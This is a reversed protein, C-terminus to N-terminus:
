IKQEKFKAKRISNYSSIDELRADWTASTTFFRGALTPSTLFALEMGPDPLGGSSPM